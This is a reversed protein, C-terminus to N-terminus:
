AGHYKEFYSKKIPDFRVLEIKDRCVTDSTKSNKTKQQFFNSGFRDVSGLENM